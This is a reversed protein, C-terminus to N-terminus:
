ASYEEAFEQCRRWDEAYFERVRELEEPPILSEDGAWSKPMLRAAYLFLHLLLWRSRFRIYHVTKNRSGKWERPFLVRAVKQLIKLQKESYSKHSPNIVIRDPDYTAGMFDAIRDFFARPDKKLEDYFLVLPKHEFLQRVMELKPHFYVDKQKWLGEDNDLDLFRHFPQTGGNKVYRRYQSAIWSDNRRLVIIIYAHPYRDAIKKVEQEYQRDFERSVFYKKHDTAEIIKDFRNYRTRQIYCVGKLKPFFRYQLYTSATKGLGVHCYLEFSPEKNMM